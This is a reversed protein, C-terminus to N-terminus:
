TTKRSRDSFRAGTSGHHFHRRFVFPRLRTAGILSQEYKPVTGTLKLICFRRLVCCPRKLFGCTKRRRRGSVHNDPGQHSIVERCGKAAKTAKAPGEEKRILSVVDCASVDKLRILVVRAGQFLFNGDKKDKESLAKLFTEIQPNLIEPKEANFPIVINQGGELFVTLQQIVQTM